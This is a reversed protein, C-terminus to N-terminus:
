DITCSLTSGTEPQCRISALGYSASVSDEWGKVANNIEDLDYGRAFGRHRELWQKAIDVDTRTILPSTWFGKSGQVEVVKHRRNIQLVFNALATRAVEATAVQWCWLFCRQYGVAEGLLSRMAKAAAETFIVGNFHPHLADGDVVTVSISGSKPGSPWAPLPLGHLTQGAGSIVRGVTSGPDSM